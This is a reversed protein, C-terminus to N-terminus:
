FNYHGKLIAKMYHMMTSKLQDTLYVDINSSTESM